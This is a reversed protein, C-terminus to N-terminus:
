FANSKWRGLARIQAHSMGAEAAYSATGIRFSHGKYRSPNLGCYKFAISLQETFQTRTVASGDALIFVPGPKCGKPALYELVLQVPCFPIQRNIVLSFPRQNYNHKFDSLTCKLAM